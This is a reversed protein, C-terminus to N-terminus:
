ASGLPISSAASRRPDRALWYVAGGGVACYVAYMVFSLTSLNAPVAALAELTGVVIAVPTTLSVDYYLHYTTVRMFVDIPIGALYTLAGVTLGRAMPGELHAVIRSFLAAAFGVLGMFVALYGTGFLDPEFDDRIMRPVAALLVLGAFCFGIRRHVPSGPMRAAVPAAKTPVNSMAGQSPPDPATRAAQLVEGIGLAGERNGSFAARHFKFKVRQGEYAFRLAVFLPGATVSVDHLQNLPLGVCDDKSFGKLKCILIRSDSVGVVFSGNMAQAVVIGAGMTAAGVLLALWSLPKVGFAAHVLQENPSLEPTLMERIKEPNLGM